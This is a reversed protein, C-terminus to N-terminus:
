DLILRSRRFRPLALGILVADLVAGQVMALFVMGATPERPTMADLRDALEPPLEIQSLLVVAMAVAFFLLGMAQTAHKTTSARLSVHIGVAAILGAAIPTLGVATFLVLPRVEFLPSSAYRTWAVVLCVALVALGLASGYVVHALYKGFLLAADPIRSALLTELTQREREGAITDTVVPIVAFAALFPILFVTAWSAGFDPGATRALAVAAIAILALRLALGKRDVDQRLLERWEKQAIALIDPIM